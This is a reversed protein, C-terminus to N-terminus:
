VMDESKTDVPAPPKAPDKPTQHLISAVGGSANLQRKGAEPERIVITPARVEDKGSRLLANETYKATKTKGEYDLRRAIVITPADKRDFLGTGAAERRRQSTHRVNPRAVIDGSETGIDIMQARLDSGQEEDVLQPDERLLLIKKDEEYRAKQGRGKRGADTFEVDRAFDASTTVGSEPDVAAVFNQCTVTRPGTATSARAGKAAPLPETSLFSDKQGRLEQLRGQEDFSFALVRARIRKREAPEGPGPLVELDADPGATAEQLQKNPRFWVDLKKAKLIRPGKGGSSGSVGPLPLESAGTHLEVDDVAVARYVASLDDTLNVTLKQSKLTETGQTVVVDEEFRLIGETRDSTARQSRIETPPGDESEIKVYADAPLTLHGEEGRYEMGTSSGSTNKRSFTVPDATKALSKDGRYVLSESRLEFGDETTLHVQGKFVARQQGPTFLCENSVIVGTGPKGQAVYTFKAEVGELHMEDQQQGVMHKARVVLGERDDKFQRYVLDGFTTNSPEAAPTAKTSPGVPAPPRRLNFAVALVVGAVLVLLGHRLRRATVPRM